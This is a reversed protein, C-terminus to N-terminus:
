PAEAFREGSPDALRGTGNEHLDREYWRRYVHRKRIQYGVAFLLASSLLAGLAHVTSRPGAATLMPYGRVRRVWIRPEGTVAYSTREPLILRYDREGVRLQGRESADREEIPADIRYSFAYHHSTQGKNSVTTWHHRGLYAAAVREGFWARLLYPGLPALCLALAFPLWALTRGFARARLAHRRSLDESSLHLRGSLPGLVWGQSADRYGEGGAHEPDHGRRLIGEAVVHEGPTLEARLHRENRDVWHRQDLADVLHVEGGQADVRVRAGSAHVIYFPKVETDRLCEEWVWRTHGKQNRHEMGRQKVTVRVAIRQGEALAVKGSVFMAHERLPGAADIAAAQRAAARARLFERLVFLAMGLSLAFLAFTVLGSAGPSLHMGQQVTLAEPTM